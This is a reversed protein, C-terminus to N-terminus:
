RRKLVAQLLTEETEGRPLNSLIANLRGDLLLV